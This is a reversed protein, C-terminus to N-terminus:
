AGERRELRRHSFTPFSLMLTPLVSQRQRTRIAFPWVKLQEAAEISAPDYKSKKLEAELGKYINLRKELMNKVTLQASAAHVKAKWDPHGKDIMSKVKRYTTAQFNLEQAPDEGGILQALQQMDMMNALTVFFERESEEKNKGVDNMPPM